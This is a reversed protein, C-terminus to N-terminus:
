KASKEGKMTDLLQVGKEVDVQFFGMIGNKMPKKGMYTIWVYAGRPVQPLFSDLHAGAVSHRSGDDSQIQYANFVEGRGPAEEFGLYTGELCDGIRDPTWKEAFTSEVTARERKRPEAATEAKTDSKTEAKSM